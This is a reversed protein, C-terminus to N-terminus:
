SRKNHINQDVGGNGGGGQHGMRAGERDKFFWHATELLKWKGHTWVGITTGAPFDFSHRDWPTSLGPFDYIENGSDLDVINAAENKFVEHLSDYETEQM